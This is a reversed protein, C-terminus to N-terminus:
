TGRFPTFHVDDAHHEARQDPKDPRSRSLNKPSPYRLRRLHTATRHM